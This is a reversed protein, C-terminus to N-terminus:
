IAGKEMAMLYRLAKTGFLLYNQCRAVKTELTPFRRSTEKLFVKDKGVNQFGIMLSELHVLAKELIDKGEKDKEAILSRYLKQQKPDRDLVLKLVAMMRGAETDPAFSGDFKQLREDIEEIGSAHILMQSVSDRVRNTITRNLVHITDQIHNTYIRRIFNNLLVLSRHHTFGPYGQKPVLNLQPNMYYQFEVLPEGKFLQNMLDELIDFRIKSFFAEFDSFVKFTLSYTYFDRLHVKPQYIMVRYYPDTRFYRILEVLPMEKLARQCSVVIRHLIQKVSEVRSPDVQQIRISDGGGDLVGSLYVLLENPLLNEVSQARFPYLACFFQELYELTPFIPADDFTPPAEPIVKAKFCHLTDEFPFIALNRLNYFPLIERQLKQIKEEDIENFYQNLRKQIEGVLDQKSETKFFLHKMEEISIFEVLSTKPHELNREIFQRFLKQVQDIDNILRRIPEMLPQISVYVSHIEEALSPLFARRTFDVFPKSRNRISSRLTALKAELLFEEETKVSILNKAWVNLKRGIKAQSWDQQLLVSKASPDTPVRVIMSELTDNLALSHEIGQQLRKQEELSITSLTKM